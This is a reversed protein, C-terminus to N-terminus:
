GNPEGSSSWVGQHERELEEKLREYVRELRLRGQEQQEARRTSEIRGRQM